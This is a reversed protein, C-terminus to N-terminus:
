LSGLISDPGADKPSRPQGQMLPNFLRSKHEDTYGSSSGVRALWWGRKGGLSSLNEGAEGLWDSSPIQHLILMLRHRMLDCSTIQNKSDGLSYLFRNENYFHEYDSIYIFLFHQEQCMITRHSDKDTRTPREQHNESLKFAYTHM